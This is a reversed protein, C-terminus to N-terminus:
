SGWQIGQCSEAMRSPDPTPRPRPIPTIPLAVVNSSTEIEELKLQIEYLLGDSAFEREAFCAM